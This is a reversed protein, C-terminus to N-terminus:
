IYTLILQLNLITILNTVQKGLINKPLDQVLNLLVRLAWYFQTLYIHIDAILGCLSEKLILDDRLIAIVQRCDTISEVYRRFSPLRRITDFDDAKLHHIADLSEEYTTCLSFANGQYYHEM